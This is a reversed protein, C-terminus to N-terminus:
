RALEIEAPTALASWARDTSLAVGGRSIALALCARDGLSLGAARTEARLLGATMAQERDIPVVAVDLQAMIERIQDPPAGRDVLKAVVESFNVASLLAGSMRAAVHDAGPEDFFAALVASADLVVPKDTM